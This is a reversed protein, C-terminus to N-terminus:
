TIQSPQERLSCYSIGLEDAKYFTASEALFNFPIQPISRELKDHVSILFHQMTALKMVPNAALKMVPNAALKM